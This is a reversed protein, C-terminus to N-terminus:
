TDRSSSLGIDGSSPLLGGVGAVSAVLLGGAVPMGGVGAVLMGGVGAVGAMSAVLLGGVGAATAVLLGCDGTM